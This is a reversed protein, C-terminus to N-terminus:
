AQGEVKWRLLEVREVDGCAEFIARAERWFALARDSDHLLFCAEGLNALAAGEHWRAAEWPPSGEPAARHLDRHISLAEDYFAIASHLKGLSRCANGLYGLCQAEGWRDGVQRYLALAQHHLDIAREHDELFYHDTGLGGLAAAEGRQDGLERSLALAQQHYAIAQEGDGLDNHAQGLARLIGAERRRDGTARAAQLDAQYADIAPPIEELTTWPRRGFDQEEYTEHQANM